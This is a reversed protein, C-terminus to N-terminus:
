KKGREESQSRSEKEPSIKLGSLREILEKEDLTFKLVNAKIVFRSSSFVLRRAQPLIPVTKVQIKEIEEWSHKQGGRGIGIRELGEKSIRVKSFFYISFSLLSLLLPLALALFAAKTIFDSFIFAEAAISFVLCILFAIFFVTSVFNSEIFAKEDKVQHKSIINSGHLVLRIRVFDLDLYDGKFPSIGTQRQSEESSSGDSVFVEDVSLRLLCYALREKEEDTVNVKASADISGNKESLHISEVKFLTFFEDLPNLGTLNRFSLSLHGSFLRLAEILNRANFELRKEEREKM